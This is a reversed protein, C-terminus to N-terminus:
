RISLGQLLSLAVDSTHLFVAVDDNKAPLIQICLRVAHIHLVLEVAQVCGCGGPRFYKDRAPPGKAVLFIL